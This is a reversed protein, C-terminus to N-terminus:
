LAVQKASGDPMIVIFIFILHYFSAKLKDQFKKKTEKYFQPQTEFFSFSYNFLHLKENRFGFVAENKRGGNTKVPYGIDQFSAISSFSDIKWLLM